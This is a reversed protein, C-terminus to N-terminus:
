SEVTYRLNTIYNSIKTMTAADKLAPNRIIECVLLKALNIVELVQYVTIESSKGHAIQSRIAYLKKFKGELTKREDLSKGLLLAIDEAISAVISKNFLEGKIQRQLLSEIAFIAQTFAISNNKESIAMGIWNVANIIRKEVENKDTKDYIGWIQANGNNVNMMFDRVENLELRKIMPPHGGIYTSSHSEGFIFRREQTGSNTTTSIVENGRVNSYLMYNCIHVIEDLQIQAQEYAYDDDRAVIEIDAFPVNYFYEDQFLMEYGAGNLRKDSQFLTPIKQFRVFRNKGFRIEDDILHVFFVPLLVHKKELKIKEIEGIINCNFMPVTRFKIFNDIMIDRFKKVSVAEKSLEMEWYLEDIYHKLKRENNIYLTIGNWITINVASTAKEDDSLENGMKLYESLKEIKENDANM